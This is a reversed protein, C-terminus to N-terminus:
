GRERARALRLTRSRAWDKVSDGIGTDDGESAPDPPAGSVPQEAAARIAARGDRARPGYSGRMDWTPEDHEDGVQHNTTAHERSCDTWLALMTLVLTTPGDHLTCREHITIMTIMTIM